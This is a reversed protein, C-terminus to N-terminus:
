QPLGVRMGMTGVALAYQQLQYGGAHMAHEVQAATVSAQHTQKLDVPRLSLEHSEAERPWGELLKPLVEQLNGRDVDLLSKRLQHSVVQNAFQGVEPPKVGYDAPEGKMFEFEFPLPFEILLHVVPERRPSDESVEGM